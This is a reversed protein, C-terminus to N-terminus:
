KKKPAYLYKLIVKDLAEKDVHYEMYKEGAKNEGELKVVDGLEYGVLRNVLATIASSSCDTMAYDKVKEYAELAFTASDSVSKKLATMFGLMYERQRDMRTVNLQDGLGQRTRVYTLAQKGTLKMEGKTITPDIQSFDDTVNVQVGGVLDNLISIADMHMTVYYDIHANYLFDSVTNRLNVASDALGTGYTHALALQGYATGAVKGGIGLIPMDLMTDRNLTLVDMTKNTEDFVLLTVMDAEGPNNYSGSSVMPGDEDIGAVLIVTMDQRPFYEVGDRVITKDNIGQDSGTPHFVTSELFQLGSIVFVLVLILIVILLAPQGRRKDKNM